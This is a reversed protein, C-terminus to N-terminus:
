RRGADDTDARVGIRLRAPLGTLRVGYTSVDSVRVKLGVINNLCHGPDPGSADPDTGSSSRCGAAAVAVASGWLEFRGPYKPDLKKQPRGGYPSGCARVIAPRSVSRYQDKKGIVIAGCAEVPSVAPRRGQRSIRQLGRVGGTTPLGERRL